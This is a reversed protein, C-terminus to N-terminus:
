MSTEATAPQLSEKLVQRSRLMADYTTTTRETGFTQTRILNGSAYAYGITTDAWPSPQDISALRGVSDYTYNNTTGRWDTISKTWGNEDVTRYLKQTDNREVEQPVGRKWQRFYTVRNLGDKMWLPTGVYGITTHYAYTKWVAGFRDHQTIRGLTDYTFADFLKSNKTITSPLGLIWLSTNHAYVTDTQRTGGGLNSWQQVSTPFGYSYSASTRDTNFVAHTNYIDSGRTIVIDSLRVPRYTDQVSNLIFNSGAVPEQIYSYTRVELPTSSAMTPYIEEKTVKAHVRASAFDTRRRITHSASPLM